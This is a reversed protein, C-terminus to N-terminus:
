GKKNMCCYGDTWTLPKGCKAARCYFVLVIKNEHLTTTFDVATSNDSTTTLAATVSLSTTCCILTMLM